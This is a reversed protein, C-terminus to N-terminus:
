QLFGHSSLSIAEITFVLSANPPVIYEGPRTPDAVGEAGYALGPPILVKRKEGVKIGLLGKEWGQIVRGEGIIVTFTEGRKYSDDIETGDVLASTYNMVVTDGQRAGNGTGASLVEVRVDKAVIDEHAGYFYNFLFVVAAIAMASVIVSALLGLVTNGKNTQM